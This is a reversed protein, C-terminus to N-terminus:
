LIINTESSCRYGGNKDSGTYDSGYIGDCVHSYRQDLIASNAGGYPLKECIADCAPKCICTCINM